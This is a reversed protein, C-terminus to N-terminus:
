SAYKTRSALVFIQLFLPINMDASTEFCLLVSISFGIHFPIFTPSIHSFLATGKECKQTNGVGGMEVIEPLFNDM